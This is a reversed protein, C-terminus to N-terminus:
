RRAAARARADLFRSRWARFLLFFLPVDIALLALNLLRPSSAFAGVLLAAATHFVVVPLFSLLVTHSRYGTRHERLSVEFAGLALACIGVLMLTPGGHFGRRLGIAAAIGGALILVESLPLPHWPARPREGFSRQVPM